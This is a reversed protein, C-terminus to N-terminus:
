KVVKKNNLLSIYLDDTRSWMRDVSYEADYKAINLESYSSAKNILKFAQSFLEQYDPYGVLAGNQSSVLDDLPDLRFAVVPLGCSYAELVVLPLVETESPLVLVSISQYFEAKDTVRGLMQVKLKYESVFQSIAEFDPGDGAVVLKTKKLGETNAKIFKLIGKEPSLRGIFGLAQRHEVAKIKPVGNHILHVKKKIGNRSLYSTMDTSISIYADTLRCYVPMLPKMKINFQDFRHFTRVLKFNGGFLKALISLSQERLMHAHIINIDKENVLKKIGIVSRCISWLNFSSEMPLFIIDLGASKLRLIASDAYSSVLFVVKHGAEQASRALLYANEEAGGEGFYSFIYGITM